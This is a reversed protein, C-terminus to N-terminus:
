ARVRLSGKVERKNVSACEESETLGADKYCGMGMDSNHPKARVM